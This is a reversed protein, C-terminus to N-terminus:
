RVLLLMRHRHTARQGAPAVWLDLRVKLRPHRRLLKRGPKTLQAVVLPKRGARKLLARALVRKGKRVVARVRGCAASCTIRAVPLKGHKLKAKKLLTTHITVRSPGRRRPGSIPVAGSSSSPVSNSGAGCDANGGSVPQDSGSDPLITLQLTEVDKSGSKVIPITV